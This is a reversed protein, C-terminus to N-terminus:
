KKDPAPDPAPDTKKPEENKILKGDEGVRQFGQPVYDDEFVKNAHPGVLDFEALTKPHRITFEPM